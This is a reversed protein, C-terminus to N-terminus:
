INSKYNSITIVYDAAAGFTDNAAVNSYIDYTCSKQNNNGYVTTTTKAWEVKAGLQTISVTTGTPVAVMAYAATSPVNLNKSGNGSGGVSKGRVIASTTNTIDSKNTGHGYYWNRYPTLTLTDTLTSTNYTAKSTDAYGFTNDQPIPLWYKGNSVSSILSLTLTATANVYVDDSVESAQGFSITTTQGASTKIEVDKETTIAGNASTSVYAYGSDALKYNQNYLLGQLYISSLKTGVEVSLNDSYSGSSSARAQLKVSPNTYTPPVNLKELIDQVSAENGVTGYTTKVASAKTKPFKQKISM